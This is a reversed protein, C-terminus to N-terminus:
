WHKDTVVYDCMGAALEEIQISIGNHMSSRVCDVAWMIATSVSVTEKKPQLSVNSASKTFDVTRNIAMTMFSTNVKCIHLTEVINEPLNESDEIM